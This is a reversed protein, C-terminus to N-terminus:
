KTSFGKDSDYTIQRGNVTMSAKTITYRYNTQTSDGRATNATVATIGVTFSCDSIEVGGMTKYEQLEKFFDAYKPDNQSITAPSDKSTLGLSQTVAFVNSAAKLVVKADAKAAAPVNASSSTSTSNGSCGTLGLMATMALAVLAVACAIGVTRKQIKM